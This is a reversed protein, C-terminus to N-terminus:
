ARARAREREPRSSRCLEALTRKEEDDLPAFALAVRM